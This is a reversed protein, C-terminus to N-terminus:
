SPVSKWRMMFSKMTCPPSGVFVPLPPEDDHFRGKLSSIWPRRFNLWRPIRAIAFSLSYTSIYTHLKRYKLSTKYWILWVCVLALEKKGKICTLPEVSFVRYKAFYCTHIWINHDQQAVYKKIRYITQKTWPFVMNLKNLITSTSQSSFSRGLSSM